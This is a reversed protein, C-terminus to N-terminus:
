GTKKSESLKQPKPMISVINKEVHKGVEIAYQLSDKGYVKNGNVDKLPFKCFISDTNKLIMNGIGGHFVGAETEIDYVYGHYQEHLVRISKIKDDCEYDSHTMTIIINNLATIKRTTLYKHEQIPISPIASVRCPSISLINFPGLIIVCFVPPGIPEELAIGSGILEVSFGAAAVSDPPLLVISLIASINPLKTDLFPEFM